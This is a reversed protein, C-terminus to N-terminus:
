FTVPWILQDLAADDCVVGARDDFPLSDRSGIVNAPDGFLTLVKDTPEAAKIAGACEVTKLMRKKRYRRITVASLGTQEIFKDFSMM